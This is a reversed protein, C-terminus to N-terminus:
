LIEEQKVSKIVVNHPCVPLFHSCPAPHKQTIKNDEKEQKPYNYM